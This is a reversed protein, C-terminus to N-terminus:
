WESRALILGALPVGQEEVFVTFRIDRCSQLQQETTVDLLRFQM